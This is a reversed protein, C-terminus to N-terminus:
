MFQVYFFGESHIIQKYYFDFDEERRQKAKHILNQEFM